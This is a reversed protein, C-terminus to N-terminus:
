KAPEVTVKGIMAHHIFCILYYEGPKEFKYDWAAEPEIRPSMIGGDSIFPVTSFVHGEIDHNIWRVTDGKSIVINDPKFVNKVTDTPAPFEMIHVGEAPTSRLAPGLKFEFSKKKVDKLIRADETVDKYTRALTEAVFFNEEKTEDPTTPKANEELLANIEAPIKDKNDEVIKTMLVDNRQEVAELFDKLLQSEAFSNASFVVTAIIGALIGLRKFGM